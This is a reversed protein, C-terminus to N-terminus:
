DKPSDGVYAPWIVRDEGEVKIPPNRNYNKINPTSIRLWGEKKM